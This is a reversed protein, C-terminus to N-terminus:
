ASSVRLVRWPLRKNWSYVYSGTTRIQSLPSLRLACSLDTLSCATRSFGM